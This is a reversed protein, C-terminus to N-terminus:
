QYTRENLSEAPDRPNGTATAQNSVVRNKMHVARQLAAVFGDIGALQNSLAVRRSNDEEKHGTVATISDLIEFKYQHVFLAFDRNKLLAEANSGQSKVQDLQAPRMTKITNLDVTLRSNFADITEPTLM